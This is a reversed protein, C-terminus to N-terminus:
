RSQLHQNSIRISLGILAKMTAYVILSKKRTNHNKYQKASHDTSTSNVVAAFSMQNRTTNKKESFILSSM